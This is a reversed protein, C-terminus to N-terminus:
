LSLYPTRDKDNNVVLTIATFLLRSFLVPPPHPRTIGRIDGHESLGYHLKKVGGGGGGGALSFAYGNDEM